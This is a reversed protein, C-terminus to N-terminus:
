TSMWSFFIEFRDLLEGQRQEWDTALSLHVALREQDDGLFDLALGEGREDHVLNAARDVHAGDLSRAEAVAALGHELVDRDEGAAFADGLVEAELELVDGEGVEALGLAEDDVLLVGGDDLTRALRGVDLAAHLLDAALDVLGGGIVVALLELFAQGLEGTTTDGDDIDAGRGLDSIFSFFCRTSSANCAM